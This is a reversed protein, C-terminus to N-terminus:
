GGASWGSANRGVTEPDALEDDKRSCPAPTGSADSLAALGHQPATGAVQSTVAQDTYECLSVVSRITM